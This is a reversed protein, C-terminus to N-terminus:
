VGETREKELEQHFRSLYHRQDEYIGDLRRVIWIIVLTFVASLSDTTFFRVAEAPAAGMLLALLARGAQMLLLTGLSVGLYLYESKRLEERGIRNMVPLVALALLNGGAYILLQRWTGGGLLCYVAGALFAHIGSWVGWRMMVICVVAGALSVTFPQDAFFLSRAARLIVGEFVVLIAAWLLLDISRYAAFSRKKEM